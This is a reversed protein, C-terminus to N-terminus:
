ESTVESDRLLSGAHVAAAGDHACAKALRTYLTNRILASSCNSNSSHETDTFAPSNLARRGEFVFIMILVAPRHSFYLNVHESEWQPEFGLRGQESENRRLQLAKMLAMHPMQDGKTTCCLRPRRAVKPGDLQSATLSRYFCRTSFVFVVSVRDYSPRCRAGLAPIADRQHLLRGPFM